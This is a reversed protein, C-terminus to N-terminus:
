KADVEFIVNGPEPRAIIAADSLFRSCIRGVKEYVVFSRRSENPVCRFIIANVYNVAVKICTCEATVSDVVLKMHEGVSRVTHSKGFFCRVDTM